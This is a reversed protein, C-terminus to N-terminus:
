SWRPRTGHGGVRCALVHVSPRCLRNRQGSVSPLSLPTRGPRSGTGQVLARQACIGAQATWRPVLWLIRSVPASPLLETWPWGPGWCGCTAVVGERDEAERLHSRSAVTRQGVPLSLAIMSHPVPSTWKQEELGPQGWPWARCLVLGQHSGWSGSSAGNKGSCSSLCPRSHPGEGLWEAERCRLGM